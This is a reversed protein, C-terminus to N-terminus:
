NFILTLVVLYVEVAETIYSSKIIFIIIDRQYRKKRWPTFNNSEVNHRFYYFGGVSTLM